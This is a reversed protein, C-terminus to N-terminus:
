LFVSWENSGELKFQRQIGNLERQGVRRSLWCVVKAL